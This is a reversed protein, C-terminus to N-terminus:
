LNQLDTLLSYFIPYVYRSDGDFKHDQLWQKLTEMQEESPKWQRNKESQIGDKVGREYELNGFKTANKISVTHPQPRLSKLKNKFWDLRRQCDDYLESEEKSPYDPFDGPYWLEEEIEKAIKEDEKSWEQKSQLSFREPLSKLWDKAIRFAKALNPNSKNFSEENGLIDVACIADKLTDKDFESWEASKSVFDNEHAFPKQEDEKEWRKQIEFWDEDAPTSIERLKEVISQKQEKHASYPFDDIYDRLSQAKQKELYAIWKDLNESKTAVEKIDQFYAIIEKRIREDESERLEPILTEIAEIEKGELFDWSKVEKIAEERTM